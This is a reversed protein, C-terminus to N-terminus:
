FHFDLKFRVTRGPQIFSNQWNSEAAPHRYNENFLNYLSLSAQLEKIWKVDTWLNLNSLLYDKTKTGDFTKRESNYQLEYGARLGSMLPIPFSFNVKGLFYPSNVRQVGGQEADQFGLSSRLRVGKDWTKDFSLEAGRAIVKNQNQQYQLLETIPDVGLTIINHMRWEYISARLNLNHQPRYDAVFEATDIWESHLGPNAVQSAGDDFEREFANPSRHARGYLAKLTTKPTAQWILAGRPSLRSGIWKNYDYRLGITASLTDTMRWEDQLFVGIRVVSSRINVNQEPSIFNQFTATQRIRTNNHYEVGMLLKHHPLATSLLRLEGGHWDSPGKVTLKEDSFFVPQRFRYQGLFVRGFINLTNNALNDDYQIQARLHRDNVNVDSFPDSFFSATPDDKRRNGYMFDFALPGRTVRAFAQKIDEGDQRRAVGSIGADGFEFFRDAGRAQLGSFSAIANTGNDFKKGFTVREQFMREKTQYSTSLEVGQVDSGNRTIINVVGLMANQGYIASSPGPVFEIRDIMDIDLPLDRGVPGQDYTGDNIRNGNIMILVRTNFDGPIGLGRTGLYEYRYDYTAHIGPLSALAENVTRWGYTRIDNRTIVSASAAVQEQKQEYKAATVIRIEM